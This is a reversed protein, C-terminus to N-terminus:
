WLAPILISSALVDFQQLVVVAYGAFVERRLTMGLCCAQWQRHTNGIITHRHWLMNSDFWVHQAKLSVAYLYVSVVEQRSGWLLLRQYTEHGIYMQCAM